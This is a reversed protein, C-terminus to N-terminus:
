IEWKNWSALAQTLTLGCAPCLLPPSGGRGAVSRLRPSPGLLPKSESGPLDLRTPTPTTNRHLGGARSSPGRAWRTELWCFGRGFAVAPGRGLWTAREAGRQMGPRSQVPPWGPGCMASPGSRHMHNLLSDITVESTRNKFEQYNLPPDTKSIRCVLELLV